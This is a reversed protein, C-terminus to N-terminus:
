NPLNRMSILNNQLFRISEESSEFDEPTTFTFVYNLVAVRSDWNQPFSLFWYWYCYLFMYWYLYSYWYLFWYWCWYLFLYWYWYLFLYWYLYLVFLYWYLIMPLFMSFVQLIQRIFIPHPWKFLCIFVFPSIPFVPIIFFCNLILHDILLM